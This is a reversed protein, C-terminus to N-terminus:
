SAQRSAGGGWRVVRCLSREDSVSPMQGRNVRKNNKLDPVQLVQYRGTLWPEIKNGGMIPFRLIAVIDCRAERRAEVDDRKWRAQADNQRLGDNQVHGQM